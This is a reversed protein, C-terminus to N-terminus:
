SRGAIDWTRGVIDLSRGAIDLSRGAIDLSRGAIDWTKWAVDLCQGLTKGILVWYANVLCGAKDIREAFIYKQRVRM